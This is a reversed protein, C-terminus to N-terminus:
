DAEAAAQVAGAQVALRNNKAPRGRFSPAQIDAGATKQNRHENWQSVQDLWADIDPLANGHNTEIRTTYDLIEQRVYGAAGGFSDRRGIEKAEAYALAEATILLPSIAESYRREVVRSRALLLSQKALPLPTNRIADVLNTERPRLEVSASPIVAALVSCWVFMLRRM